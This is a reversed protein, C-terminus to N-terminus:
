TPQPMHYIKIKNVPDFVIYLLFEIAGTNYSGTVKGYYSSRIGYLFTTMMFVSFFILGVIGTTLLIDLYGNHGQRATSIFGAGFIVAPSTDGIGWFSGFGVGFWPHFSIEELVFRWLITRGTLTKDPVFIGVIENFSPDAFLIMIALLFMVALFLTAFTFLASLDYRQVFHVLTIVVIPSLVSIVISTKSGTFLIFIYWM